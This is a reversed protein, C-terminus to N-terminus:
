VGCKEDQLYKEGKIGSKIGTQTGKWKFEICIEIVKKPTGLFTAISHDLDLVIEKIIGMPFANYADKEM